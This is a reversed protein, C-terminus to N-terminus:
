GTATATTATTPPSTLELSAFSWFGLNRTLKWSTAPIKLQFGVLWRHAKSFAPRPLCCPSAIQIATAHHKQSSKWIKGHCTAWTTHDNTKLRGHRLINFTSEFFLLTFHSLHTGLQHSLLPPLIPVTPETTNVTVTNTLKCSSHTVFTLWNSDSRGEDKTWEEMSVACVVEVTFQKSNPSASTWETTKKRSM